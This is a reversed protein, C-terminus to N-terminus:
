LGRRSGRLTAAALRATIKTPNTIATGVVVAWAGADFAARVDNGTWLRGEAIVPVSVAAALSAILDLDPGRPTVGRTYGSLTTAVLDAGAKAAAVGSQNDDVDAMVRVNLETRIRRILETASVGGERVRNTADVAVIDAGATVIAKASEFTPTIYVQRGDLIKRIGIIPLGVTSHIATIDATGEARIGVAGGREASVAMAQMFAAGHLPNDSRAQCSVILGGALSSLEIM